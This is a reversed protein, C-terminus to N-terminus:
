GLGPMEDKAAIKRLLAKVEGMEKKMERMETKLETLMGREAFGPSGPAGAAADEEAVEILEGTVPDFDKEKNGSIVQLWTFPDIKKGGPMM